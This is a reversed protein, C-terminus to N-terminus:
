DWMSRSESDVGLVATVRSWHKPPWTKLQVASKSSLRCRSRDVTLVKQEGVLTFLYVCPLLLVTASGIYEPPMPSDATKHEFDLMRIWNKQFKEAASGIILGMATLRPCTGGWGGTFWIISMCQAWSMSQEHTSCKIGGLRTKTWECFIWFSQKNNVYNEPAKTYVSCGRGWFSTWGSFTDGVLIEKWWYAAWRVAVWSLTVLGVPKKNIPWEPLSYCM